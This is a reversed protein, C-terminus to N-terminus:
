PSVRGESAFIEAAFFEGTREGDTRWQVTGRAECRKAMTIAENLLAQQERIGEVLGANAAKCTDFKHEAEGWAREMAHGDAIAQRANENARSLTISTDVVLWTQGILLALLIFATMRWSRALQEARDARLREREVDLYQNVHESM